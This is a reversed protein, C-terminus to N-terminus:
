KFLTDIANLKIVEFPIFSLTDLFERNILLVNSNPFLTHYSYSVTNGFSATLINRASNFSYPILGSGFNFTIAYSNLTGNNYFIVSDSMLPHDLRRYQISSGNTIDYSTSSQVIWKGLIKSTDNTPDKACSIFSLMYVLSLFFIIKKM